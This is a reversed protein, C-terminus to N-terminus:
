SPIDGDVKANQLQVLLARYGNEAAFGSLEALEGPTLTVHPEQKLLLHRFSAAILKWLSTFLDRM